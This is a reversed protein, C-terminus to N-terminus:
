VYYLRDFWGVYREQTKDREMISKYHEGQHVAFVVILRKLENHKLAQHLVRITNPGVVGDVIIDPYYKENRNLLNMSSQLWKCARVMGVNIGTDFIKEALVESVQHVKDLGPKIWFEFEYFKKTLANLESDKYLVSPSKFPKYGDIIEWGPWYPHYRRSIGKYTEGGRDVPDNVYGGEIDMTGKYAKDFSM